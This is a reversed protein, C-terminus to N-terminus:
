ETELAARRRTDFRPEVNLWIGQGLVLNEPAGKLVPAIRDLYAECWRRCWDELPEDAKPDPLREAVIKIRGDRWQSQCFVSATGHKAILRPVFTSLAVSRGLFDLKLSGTDSEPADQAFGILTGKRIEDVLTRLAAAPNGANVTIRMPPGEGVVPDPGGFGFGRFPRGLTQWYRVTGALPGIHTTVLLCRENPGLSEIPGGAGPRDILADLEDAREPKHLWWARTLQDAQRGWDLAKLWREKDWKSTDALAWAWDLKAQSIKGKPKQAGIAALGEALTQPMQRAGAGSLRKGYSRMEDAHGLQQNLVYLARLADEDHADRALVGKYAAVAAERDGSAQLVRGKAVLFRVAEKDGMAEPATAVADLVARAEDTRQLAILRTAYFIHLAAADPVIECATKLLALAEDGREAKAYSFAIDHFVDALREKDTEAEHALKRARGPKGDVAYAVIQMLKHNPELPELAIAEGISLLAQAADASKLATEARLAHVTAIDPFEDALRALLATAEDLRGAKILTNAFQAQVRPNRPFSASAARAAELAQDHKKLRQLTRSYLLRENATADERAALGALIPEAGRWDGSRFMAQARAFEESKAETTEDQKM